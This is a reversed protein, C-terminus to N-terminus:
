NIQKNLCLVILWHLDEEELFFTKRLVVYHEKLKHVTNMSGFFFSDLDTLPHMLGTM